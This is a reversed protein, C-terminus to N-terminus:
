ANWYTMGDLLFMNERVYPFAYVKEGKRLYIAKYVKYYRLKDRAQKFSKSALANIEFHMAKLPFYYEILEFILFTKARTCANSQKYWNSKDSM